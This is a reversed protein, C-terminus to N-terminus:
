KGNGGVRRWNMQTAASKDVFRNAQGRGLVKTGFSMSVVGMLATIVIILLALIGLDTLLEIM